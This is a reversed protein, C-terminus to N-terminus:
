AQTFRGRERLAAFSPLRDREIHAYAVSEAVRENGSAVADRLTEHDHFADEVDLQSTLYFLWMMRGSVSRMLSSMLENDATEVIAEHYWTSAQAIDYPDRDHVVDQSHKLAIDIRTMSAGAAVRRAAFRAAGVEICLRLDFLDDVTKEDWTAVVAGRRPFTRVFGDRELQPVAERLPVRSVDMEQALRQEALRSGEPYRGRIIDERVSAYIQRSLSDPKESVDTATPM